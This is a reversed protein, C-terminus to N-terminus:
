VVIDGHVRVRYLCTYDANGWNEEVIFSVAKVIRRRNSNNSRGSEKKHSIDNNNDGCSPLSDEDKPPTCQGPSVIEPNEDDDDDDDIIVEVLEEKEKNKVQTAIGDNNISSFSFVDDELLRPKWLGGKVAFTQISRHRSGDVVSSSLLEEDKTRATTKYGDNEIIVNIKRSRTSSNGDYDDESEDTTGTTIRQYELLGLNIPSSIDFEYQSSSACSHRSSVEENTENQDHEPCPPYGVVRVFRPASEGGVYNHKKETKTLDIPFSRHELTVADIYISYPLEVTYRPRGYSSGLKNADDYDEDDDREDNNHHPTAFTTTTTPMDYMPDTTTSMSLPYCRGMSSSSSSRRRKTRGEEEEEGEEDREKGNGHSSSSSGILSVHPHATKGYPVGWAHFMYDPIVNDLLSYITRESWSSSSPSSSFYYDLMREWDMPLYPRVTSLKYQTTYKYLINYVEDYQLNRIHNLMGSSGDDANNDQQQQHWYTSEIMTDYEDDHNSSSSSSSSSPVYPLSTMGYVVKGYEAYDVLSSEGGMGDDQRLLESSVLRVGDTMSVCKKQQKRKKRKRENEELADITLNYYNQYTAAISRLRSHLIADEKQLPLLLQSEIMAKTAIDFDTTINNNAVLDNDNNNDNYDEDLIAADAVASSSLLTTLEDKTLYRNNNTNSKKGGDTVDGDTTRNGHYRDRRKEEHVRANTLRSTLGTRLADRNYGLVYTRIANTRRCLEDYKATNYEVDSRMANTAAAASPTSAATHRHRQQLVDRLKQLTEMKGEHRLRLARVETELSAQRQPANAAPIVVSEGTAAAVASKWVVVAFFLPLLMTGRKKAASERRRRSPRRGRGRRPPVYPSRREELDDRWFSIVVVLNTDNILAVILMLLVYIKM